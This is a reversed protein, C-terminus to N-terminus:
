PAELQEGDQEMLPGLESEKQILLQDVRDILDHMVEDTGDMSTKMLGNSDAISRDICVTLEQLTTHLSTLFAVLWAEREGREHRLLKDLHKTREELVQRTKRQEGLESALAECQHMVELLNADVPPACDRLMQDFSKVAREMSALRSEYATGSVLPDSPAPASSGNPGNTASAAARFLVSGSAQMTPMGGVAAANFQPRPQGGAPPASASAQESFRRPNESARLSAASAPRAFPDRDASPNRGLGANMAPGSANQNYQPSVASSGLSNTPGGAKPVAQSKVCQQCKDYDCQNCRYIVDTINSRKCLDCSHSPFSTDKGPICEQLLHGKPCTGRVGPTSPPSQARPDRRSNSRSDGGHNARMLGEAHLQQVVSMSSSAQRQGAASTSSRVSNAMSDAIASPPANSPARTPQMKLRDGVARGADVAPSGQVTDGAVKSVQGAKPGLGFGPTGVVRAALPSGALPQRAAGGQAGPLGLRAAASPIEGRQVGSSPIPRGRGLM